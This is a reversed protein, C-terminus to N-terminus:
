RVPQASILGLMLGILVPLHLARTGGIGALKM